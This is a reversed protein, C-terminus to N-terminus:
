GAAEIQQALGGAVLCDGCVYSDADLFRHEEETRAGQAAELM